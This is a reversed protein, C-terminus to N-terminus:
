AQWVRIMRVMNSWLTPQYHFHSNMCFSKNHLSPFAASGTQQKGRQRRRLECGIVSASVAGISQPMDPGSGEVDRVAKRSATMIHPLRVSAVAASPVVANNCLFAVQPSGTPTSSLTCQRLACQRSRRASDGIDSRLSRGDTRGLRKM